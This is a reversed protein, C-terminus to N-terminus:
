PHVNSSSPPDGNQSRGQRRQEPLSPEAGSAALCTSTTRSRLAQLAVKGAGAAPSASAPISIEGVAIEEAGERSRTIIGDRM